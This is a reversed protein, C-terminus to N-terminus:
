TAVELDKQTKKQLILRETFGTKVCPHQLRPSIKRKRGESPASHSIVLERYGVYYAEETYKEEDILWQSSHYATGNLSVVCVVRLLVPM